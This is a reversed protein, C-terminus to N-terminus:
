IPTITIEIKFKKGYKIFPKEFELTQENDGNTKMRLIHNMVLSIASDTVDSINSGMKDGKVVNGAYIKGSETLELKIM